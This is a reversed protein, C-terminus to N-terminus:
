LHMSKLPCLAKKRMKRDVLALGTGQLSYVSLPFHPFLPPFFILLLFICKAVQLIHFLYSYIRQVM